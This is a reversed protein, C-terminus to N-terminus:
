FFNTHHHNIVFIIFVVRCDVKLVSVIVTFVFDLRGFLLFFWKFPRGIDTGILHLLVTIVGGLKHSVLGWKERDRIRNDIYITDPPICTVIRGIQGFLGVLGVKLRLSNGVSLLQSPLSTHASSQWRFGAQTANFSNLALFLSHVALEGTSRVSLLSGLKASSRGVPRGALTLTTNNNSVCLNDTFAALETATNCLSCLSKTSASSWLYSNWNQFWNSVNRLRFDILIFLFNYNLLLLFDLCSARSGLGPNRNSTSLRNIGLRVFATPNGHLLRLVALKLLLSKDGLTSTTTCSPASHKIKALDGGRSSRDFFFARARGRAWRPPDKGMRTHIQTGVNSLVSGQATVKLKARAVKTRVALEAM